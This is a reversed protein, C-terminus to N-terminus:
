GDDVVVMVISLASCFVLIAVARCHCLITALSDAESTILHSFDAAIGAFLSVSEGFASDAELSAFADLVDPELM